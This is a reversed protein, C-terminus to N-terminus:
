CHLGTIKIQIDQTDKNQSFVRHRRGHLESFSLTLDHDMIKRHFILLGLVIKKTALPIHIRKDRLSRVM